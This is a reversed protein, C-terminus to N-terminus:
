MVASMEGDIGMCLASPRANVVAMAACDAMEDTVPKRRRSWISM